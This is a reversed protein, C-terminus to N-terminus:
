LDIGTLHAFVTPHTTRFYRSIHTYICFMWQPPLKLTPPERAISYCQKASGVENNANNSQHEWINAVAIFGMHGQDTTAVTRTERYMERCSISPDAVSVSSCHVCTHGAIFAFPLCLIKIVLTSNSNLASFYQQM